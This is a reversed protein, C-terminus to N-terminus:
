WCQGDCTAWPICLWHFLKLLICLKLLEVGVELTPVACLYCWLCRGIDATWYLDDVNPRRLEIITIHCISSVEENLSSTLIFFTEVRLPILLHVLSCIINGWRTIENSLMITTDKCDAQRPVRPLLDCFLKRIKCIHLNSCIELVLPTWKNARVVKWFTRALGLAHSRNLRWRFFLKQWRVSHLSRSLEIVWDWAMQWLKHIWKTDYSHRTSNWNLLAYARQRNSDM